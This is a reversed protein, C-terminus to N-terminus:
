ARPRFLRKSHVVMLVQMSDEDDLFRYVVRYPDVIVERFGRDPAEPVSRGSLPFAGLREAADRLRRVVADANRPSDAAIYQHIDNLDLEADTTWEVQAM